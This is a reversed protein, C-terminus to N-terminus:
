YEHTWESCDEALFIRRSASISISAALDFIRRCSSKSIMTTEDVFNICNQFSSLSPSLYHGLVSLEITSHFCHVGLRDFESQIEQYEKKGQKRERASELNQVSDFPYTLELMAVSDNSKSFIVLDPRYPTILLFPPITSQPCDSARMGLLDAYILIVSSRTLCKSLETALCYLVKNHRYTFRGQSLAGPCGGLVHATTPQGSGCLTCKASCQFHWYQLNVATPLTDSAACM